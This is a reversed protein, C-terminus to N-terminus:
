LHISYYSKDIIVCKLIEHQMRTNMYSRRVFSKVYLKINICGDVSRFM